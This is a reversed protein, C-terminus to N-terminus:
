AELARYAAAVLSMARWDTHSASQSNTVYAFSLGAAPDAFALTGGAGPHGFAQPDRSVQFFSTAPKMFGQAFSTLEGLIRDPGEVAAATATKVTDPSLLRVGDLTGGEALAAYVRSLARANTVGCGSPIELALVGPDHDAGPAALEPLAFMARVLDSDPDWAASPEAAASPVITAVGVAVEPPTGIYAPVGLPGAVEDSLFAGVTRGDIRRLLEGAYFGWTVAHYGHATGPEWHPRQAALLDSLADPVAVDALTIPADLYALGAQHSLLQGVTVRQKGAAAFEPWYRCVPSAYDLRGRDALMALCTAVLGKTASWVVQVTDHEWRRGAAPAALGGWMDVVPRGRVQVALAAGVEGRVAFNARFERAVADFEPAAFGQVTADEM